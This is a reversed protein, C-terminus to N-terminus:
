ETEELLKENLLKNLNIVMGIEKSIDEYEALKLLLKRLYRLEEEEEGSYYPLIPVGNNMHLAFSLVSNDIIVIDKLSVGKFIRLDKIYYTNDEYVVKTCNNRYLRYEFIEHFPDLFNLVSDAYSQHSATYVIVYYKKKIKLLEEKWNPRINIGITKIKKCPLLIEIKHQSPNNHNLECHILTEDLDFVALRKQEPKMGIKDAFPLEIYQEKAVQINDYNLINQSSMEDILNLCEETYEYFDNIEQINTMKKMEATGSTFSETGKTNTHKNNKTSSNNKMYNKSFLQLSPIINYYEKDFLNFSEISKPLSSCIFSNRQFTKDKDQFFPPPPNILKMSLTSILSQDQNDPNYLMNKYTQPTAPDVFKLKQNIFQPTFSINRKPRRLFKESKVESNRQGTWLSTGTKIDKKDETTSYPSFLSEKQIFGNPKRTIM